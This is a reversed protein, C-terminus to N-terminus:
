LGCFVSLLIYIVSWLLCFELIVSMESEYKYITWKPRPDKKKRYSAFITPVYNGLIGFYDKSLEQVSFFLMYDM